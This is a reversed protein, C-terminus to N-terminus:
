KTSVIDFVMAGFRNVILGVVCRLIVAFRYWHFFSSFFSSVCFLYFYSPVEGEERETKKIGSCGNWVYVRCSFVVCGLIKYRENM